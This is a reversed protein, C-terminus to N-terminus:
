HRYIPDRREVPTFPNRVYQVPIDNDLPRFGFEKARPSPLPDFHLPSVPERRFFEPDGSFYDTDRRLYDQV